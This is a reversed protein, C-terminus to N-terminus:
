KAGSKSVIVFTKYSQCGTNVRHRRRRRGSSRRRWGVRRNDVDDFNREVM